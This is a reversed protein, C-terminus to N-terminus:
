TESAAAAAVSAADLAAASAGRFPHNIYILWPELVSARNGNAAAAAAAITSAPPKLLIRCCAAAALLLGM